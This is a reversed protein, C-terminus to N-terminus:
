SKAILETLNEFLVPETIKLPKVAIRSRVINNYDISIDKYKQESVFGGEPGLGLEAMIFDQLMNWDKPQIVEHELIDEADSYREWHLQDLILKMQQGGHDSIYAHDCLVYLVCAPYDKWDSACIAKALLDMDTARKWLMLTDVSIQVPYTLPVRLETIFRKSCRDTLIAKWEECKPLLEVSITKSFNETLLTQKHRELRNKIKDLDLEADILTEKDRIGENRSVTYIYLSQTDNNWALLNGKYVAYGDTTEPVIVVNANDIDRVFKYGSNRVIDRPIRCKPSMWVKEGYNIYYSSKSEIVYHPYSANPNECFCAMKNIAPRNRIESISERVFGHSDFSLSGFYLHDYEIVQYSYPYPM